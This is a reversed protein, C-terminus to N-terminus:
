KNGEEKKANDRIHNDIMDAVRKLIMDRISDSLNQYYEVGDSVFTENSIYNVKIIEYNRFSQNTGIVFSYKFFEHTALSGDAFLTGSIPLQASFVSVVEGGINEILNKVRLAEDTYHTIM